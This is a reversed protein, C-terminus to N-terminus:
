GYFNESYEYYRKYNKKSYYKKQTDEIDNVLFGSIRGGTIEFKSLAEKIDNHDTLGMRVVVYVATVKTALAVGDTVYNVPPTDIFIYDYKEEMATLFEDMEASSLLEAPNTPSYGGVVIDLNDFETRRVVEEFTNVGVLINSLGVESEINFLKHLRPKRLDAELLLVRAGTQAFTIAINSCTTTKGERPFASTILIKKCGKGSLSFMINTRASKYAEKEVFSSKDSLILSVRPTQEFKSKKFLPM